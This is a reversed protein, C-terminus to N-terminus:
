WCSKGPRSAAGPLYPVRRQSAAPPPRPAYAATHASGDGPYLPRGEGAADWAHPVHFVRWPGTRSRRYASRLPLQIGHRSCSAWSAFAPPRFAAPFRSPLGSRWAATRPYSAPYWAM